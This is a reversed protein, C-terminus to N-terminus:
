KVTLNTPAAPVFQKVQPVGGIVSFSGESSYTSEIGREDATASVLYDGDALSMDAIPVSTNTSSIRKSDSYTGTTLRYYFNYTVPETITDGDTYTTVPSVSITSVTTPQTPLATVTLPLLCLFLVLFKINM